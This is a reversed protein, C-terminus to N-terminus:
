AGGQKRAKDQERGGAGFRDFHFIGLLRIIGANIVGGHFAHVVAVGDAYGVTVAAFDTDAHRIDVRGFQILRVALAAAVCQTGHQLALVHLNFNEIGVLVAALHRAHQQIPAIHIQLLDPLAVRPM